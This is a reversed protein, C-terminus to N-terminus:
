IHILSLDLRQDADRVADRQFEHLLREVLPLPTETSCAAHLATQARVPEAEGVRAGADLLLAAVDHRGKTLALYLPPHRGDDSECDADTTELNPSAGAALLAQVVDTRGTKAAWAMASM